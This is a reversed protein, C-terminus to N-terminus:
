GSVQYTVTGSVNASDWSFSVDIRASAAALLAASSLRVFYVAMVEACTNAGIAISVDPVHFSSAM